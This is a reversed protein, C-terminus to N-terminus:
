SWSFCFQIRSQQKHQPEQVGLLSSQWNGKNHGIQLSLRYASQLRNHQTVLKHHALLVSIRMQMNAGLPFKGQIEQNGGTSADPYNEERWKMTPCCCFTETNPQSVAGLLAQSFYLVNSKASTDSYRLSTLIHKICINLATSSPHCLAKASSLTAEKMKTSSFM